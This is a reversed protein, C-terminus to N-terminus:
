CTASGSGAAIAAEYHGIAQDYAEAAAAHEGIGDRMVGLDYCLNGLETLLLGDRPRSALLVQADAISQEVRRSAARSTLPERIIM